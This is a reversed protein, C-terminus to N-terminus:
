RDGRGENELRGCGAVFILRPSIGFPENGFANSSYSEVEHSTGATGCGGESGLVQGIDRVRGQSAATGACLRREAASYLQVSFAVKSVGM